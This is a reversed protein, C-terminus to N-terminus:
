VHRYIGLAKSLHELKEFFGLTKDNIVTIDCLSSDYSLSKDEPADQAEIWVSLCFLGQRKATQFERKSRIGNIIDNHNMMGWYLGVGLQEIADRWEERHNSRDQYCDEPTEYGYLPGIQLFVHTLAAMSTSEKYLLSTHEALWECTTDKGSQGRGSIAIRLGKREM